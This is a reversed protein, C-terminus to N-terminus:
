YFKLEAAFKPILICIHLNQSSFIDVLFGGIYIKKTFSMDNVFEAYSNDYVVLHLDFHCIGLIWEKHLSSEGVVSIVCNKMNKNVVLDTTKFFRM